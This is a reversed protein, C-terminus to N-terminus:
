FDGYMGSIKSPNYYQPSAGLSIDIGHANKPTRLVKKAFFTRLRRLCLRKKFRRHGKKPPTQPLLGVSAPLRSVIDTVALLRSLRKKLARLLIKTKQM